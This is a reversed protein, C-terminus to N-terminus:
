ERFRVSLKAGFRDVYFIFHFILLIFHFIPSVFSSHSARTSSLDFVCACSVHVTRRASDGQASTAHSMIMPASLCSFIRRTLTNQECIIRTTSSNSDWGRRAGHFPVDRLPRLFYGTGSRLRARRGRPPLRQRCRPPLNNSAWSIRCERGRALLFQPSASREWWRELKWKVDWCIGTLRTSLFHKLWM